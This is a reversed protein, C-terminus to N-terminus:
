TPERGWEDMYRLLPYLFYQIVRRKGVKIEATVTMGPMLRFNNGVKQLATPDILEVRTKYMTAAQPNLMAANQDKEFSGESIKRVVGDITGHKQYPFSDFKIRVQSGRPLTSAV